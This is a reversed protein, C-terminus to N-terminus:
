DQGGTKGDKGADLVGAGGQHQPQQEHPRNRGYKNEFKAERDAQLRRAGARVGGFVVHDFSSGWSEPKKDSM